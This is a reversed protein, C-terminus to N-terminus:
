VIYLQLIMHQQLLYFLVMKVEEKELFDGIKQKPLSCKLTKLYWM